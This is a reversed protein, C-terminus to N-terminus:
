KGPLFEIPQGGFDENTEINHTLPVIKKSKRYEVLESWHKDTFNWANAILEREAFLEEGTKLNKVLMVGDETQLEYRGSKTTEVIVKSDFSIEKIVKFRNDKIIRRVLTPSIDSVTEILYQKKLQWLKCSFTNKILSSPQFIVTVNEGEEVIVKLSINEM